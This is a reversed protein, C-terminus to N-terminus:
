ETKLETHILETRDELYVDVFTVIFLLFDPDSMSMDHM